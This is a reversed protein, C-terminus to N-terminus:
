ATQGLIAGLAEQLEAREFRVRDFHEVIRHIRWGESQLEAAKLIAASEDQPDADVPVREKRHNGPAMAKIIWSM